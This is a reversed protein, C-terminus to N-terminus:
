KLLQEAEERGEFPKGEKLLNGLIKRAEIEQGSKLLAVAHHYRVEPVRPLDMMVQELIQRGKEVQGQQVLIWGYTDKVGNDNPSVRYAREALELAKPNSALSYLWALNNLAVVNDPQIKVAKEFIEIAKDDQKMALYVTGLFQLVRADNPHDSLWTLLPRTAEEFKSSRMSAESLKIALGALQKRQWAQEYSAKADAPNKGAMQADGALEYGMYLDPHTKQIQGAYQLAQEYHNSRLELKVMLALAPLYDAQKELVIGLQKRTDKLQDLKFYTEGLMTRALVSGPVRTILENLTSLAKEYQGQAAQLRAKLVFLKNDRPAINSAEEIMLGAKELQNKRLYYEALIKLPRVDQPARKRAQELWVLMEEVQNQTEALRALAMVSAIDEINTDALKKYLAEAKAPHGDLEELRALLM